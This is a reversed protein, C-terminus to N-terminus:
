LYHDDYIIKTKPEAKPIKEILTLHKKRRQLTTIEKTCVLVTFGNNLALEKAQNAIWSKGSRRM